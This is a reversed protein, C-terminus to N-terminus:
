PCPLGTDDDAHFGGLQWVVVLTDGDLCIFGCQLVGEFCSVNNIAYFEFAGLVDSDADFLWGLLAPDLAEGQRFVM